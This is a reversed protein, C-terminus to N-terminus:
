LLLLIGGNSDNCKYKLVLVYCSKTTVTVETNLMKFYKRRGYVLLQRNLGPCTLKGSANVETSATCM